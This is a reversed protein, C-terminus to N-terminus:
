RKFFDIQARQPGAQTRAHVCGPCGTIGFHFRTVHYIFHQVWAFNADGRPLASSGDPNDDKGSKARAM